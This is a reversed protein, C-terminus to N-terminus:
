NIDESFMMTMRALLVLRGGLHVGNPSVGVFLYRGTECCSREELDQTECRYLPSPPSRTFKLAKDDHDSATM